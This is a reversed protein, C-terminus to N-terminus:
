YTLEAIAIRNESAPWARAVIREENFLGVVPRGVEAAPLRLTTASDTPVGPKVDTPEKGDLLVVDRPLGFYGRPRSMMVIVGAGTDAPLFPRAARLHVIDSSRPFPSRYIHTTVSDPSTLVFELSWSPDVQAPGWRGDSGTQSSHLPGGIREGTETSVRYIDVSAGSVPRNTPVGGPTGTVLGSLRVTAEPVIGIRSPERGAIFKYIERFARPHFATERHDLAGLVLNTAGKLAPGDATVNTPRGPKGVFRGDGQAFKDLGDSRLTLFATGATVESDGDNLARLFPGRGNFENGLGDDWAYVGHNPTGCLVAHSVDGGGGNKIYNRIAYGGRSSGVLAVRAAGTAQRLEKIAEGLERRQDETSSRNAQEVKDDTRALPDTFNLALLRERPVGNSEMRWITTVWLPAQDGNGHVFLIPPLDAGPAAPVTQALASTGLRSGLLPLAGAGKLITRRSLDM